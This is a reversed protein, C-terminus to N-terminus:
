LTNSLARHNWSPIDPTGHFATLLKPIKYITTTIKILKNRYFYSVIFSIINLLHTVNQSFNKLLFYICLNMVNSFQMELSQGTHIQIKAILIAFVL